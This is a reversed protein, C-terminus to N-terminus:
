DIMEIIESIESRLRKSVRRQGYNTMASVLSQIANTVGPMSNPSIELSFQLLAISASGREMKQAMTLAKLLIPKTISLKEPESLPEPTRDISFTQYATKM